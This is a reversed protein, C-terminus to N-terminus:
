YKSKVLVTFKNDPAYQEIFAEEDEKSNFKLSVFSFGKLKQCNQVNIDKSTFYHETTPDLIKVIM